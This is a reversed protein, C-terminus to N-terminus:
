CLYCMARPLNEQSREGELFVLRSGKRPVEMASETKGADDCKIIVRM